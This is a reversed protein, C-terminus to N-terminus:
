SGHHVHGTPLTPHLEPLEALALGLDEDTPTPWVEGKRAQLRSEQATLGATKERLTSVVARKRDLAERSTRDLTNVDTPGLRQLTEDLHEEALRLQNSLPARRRRLRAVATDIWAPATRKLEGEARLAARAASSAEDAARDLEKIEERKESIIRALEGEAADHVARAQVAALRLEDKQEVVAQMRQRAEFAEVDRQLDASSKGAAACLEHAEDPPPQDGTAIAAVLADYDSLPQAESRAERLRLAQFFNNLM